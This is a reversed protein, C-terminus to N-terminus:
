PLLLSPELRCAAPELLESYLRSGYSDEGLLHDLHIVSAGMFAAAAM